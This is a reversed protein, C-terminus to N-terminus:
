IQENIQRTVRGARIETTQRIVYDLIGSPGDHILRATRVFRDPNIAEVSLSVIRNREYRALVDHWFRLVQHRLLDVVPTPRHDVVDDPGAECRGHSSEVVRPEHEDPM